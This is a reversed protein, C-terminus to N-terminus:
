EESRNDLYAIVQEGLYKSYAPPIAQAMEKKTMWDIGMAKAWAAHSSKGDGGHGAVTVYYGDKVTGRHKIHPPEILPINSEFLRHRIVQLGFMEGCLRIPNILPAGVVNEIIYPIGLRDLKERIPGVLDPWEKNWRKASWSYSQCPPSAWIFHTIGSVKTFVDLADMNILCYPYNPQPYKDVGVVRFGADHLGRSTGGAGCFLDIATYKKNM